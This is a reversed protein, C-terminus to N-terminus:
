SVVARFHEYAEVDREVSALHGEEWWVINNLRMSAMSLMHVVEALQARRREPAGGKMLADFAIRYAEHAVKSAERAQAAWPESPSAM